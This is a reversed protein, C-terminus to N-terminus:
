FVPLGLAQLARNLQQIAKEMDKVAGLYDNLGAKSNADTKLDHAAATHRSVQERTETSTKQEKLMMGVMIESSHFRKQEYLFEERPSSFSLKMVVEQGDRMRTIEEVALKYADAMQKNAEPLKSNELLKRAESIMADLRSIVQRATTASSAPTTIDQFSRRYGDIQKAYDDFQRKQLEANGTDTTLMSSSRSLSRLAEDLKEVANGPAGNALLAQAQELLIRSNIAWAAVEPNKSDPAAKMAPTKLLSEVLKAKQEALQTQRTIDPPPPDAGVISSVLLFFLGLQRTSIPM